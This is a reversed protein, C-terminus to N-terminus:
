LVFGFSGSSNSRRSGWTITVLIVPAPKAYAFTVLAKTEHAHLLLGRFLAPGNLDQNNTRRDIEAWSSDVSRDNTVEIVWCKPATCGTSDVTSWVTVSRIAHHTPAIRQNETFDYGFSQNPGNSSCFHSDTLLDAAQMPAYTSHYVLDSFAHVAQGDCVNGGARKTLFWIIGEQLPASGPVFVHISDTSKFGAITPPTPLKSVTAKLAALESAQNRTSGEFSRIQAQLEGIESPLGEFSSMQAHLKGVESPLGEFSCIQAQLKGVQSPLVELTSM